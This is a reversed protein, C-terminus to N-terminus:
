YYMCSSIIYHKRENQLCFCFLISEIWEYKPVTSLM